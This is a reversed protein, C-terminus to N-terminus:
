DDAPIQRKIAAILDGPKLPEVLYEWAGGYIASQRAAEDRYIASVLIIRLTPHEARLDRCVQYGSGDPLKVDCLVVDPRVDALSKLADRVTSVSVVHYGARKLIGERLYQTPLHDEVQLVTRQSGKGESVTVIM